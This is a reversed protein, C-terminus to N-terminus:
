ILGTAYFQGRFRRKKKEKKLYFRNTVKLSIYIVFQLWRLNRTCCTSVVQSIYAVVPQLPVDPHSALLALFRGFFVFTFAMTM